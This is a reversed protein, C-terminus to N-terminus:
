GFYPRLFSKYITIFSTGLLGNHFKRLLGTAKYVRKSVSHTLSSVFFIVFFYITSAAILAREKFYIKM